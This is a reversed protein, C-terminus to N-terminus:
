PESRRRARLAVLVFGRRAAPLSTGPTCSDRNGAFEELRTRMRRAMVVNEKREYRELAQELAAAAETSRGALSLVEGLDAYADAQENLQDTHCVIEGAENALHYAETFEGRAALV